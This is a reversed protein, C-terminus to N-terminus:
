QPNKRKLELINRQDNIYVISVEIRKLLISCKKSISPSILAILKKKDALFKVLSAYDGDSSIIIQRDCNNEYADCVANLVLDADCNGKIKGDSGSVTEKFVL